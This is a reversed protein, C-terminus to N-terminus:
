PRSVFYLREQVVPKAAQLDVRGTGISPVIDLYTVIQMYQFLSVIYIRTLWNRAMSDAVDSVGKREEAAADQARVQVTDHASPSRMENAQADLM